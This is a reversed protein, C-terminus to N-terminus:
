LGQYIGQLKNITKYINFEQEVRTRGQQGKELSRAPDSLLISVLRALEQPTRVSLLLGAEEHPGIVEPIGDVATGIVPKECAMAEIMSTGLAEHESPQLLIDIENMVRAIDQRPGILMVKDQLNLTKIRDELSKQYRFSVENDLYIGGILLVKVDPHEKIIFSAAEIVLDQGKVPHLAGIVALIKEQNRIGLEQRLGNEIPMPKFCEIDIGDYIVKVKDKRIFTLFDSRRKQLFNNRICESVCIIKACRYILFREFPYIWFHSRLHVVTRGKMWILLPWLHNIGFHMNFHIIDVKYDRVVKFMERNLKFVQGLSPRPGLDFNLFVVEIGMKEARVSLPGRAPLLVLPYFQTRDLHGLIDLMRTEAGYLVSGRNLYLICKRKKNM